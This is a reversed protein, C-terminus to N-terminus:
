DAEVYADAIERIKKLKICLQTNEGELENVYEKRDVHRQQHVEFDKEMRDIVKHANELQAKLGHIEMDRKRVDQCTQPCTALESIAKNLDDVEALLEDIRKRAAEERKVSSGFSEKLQAIEDNRVELRDRLTKVTEEADFARKDLIKLEAIITDYTSTMEKIIGEYQATTTM